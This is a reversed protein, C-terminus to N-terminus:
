SADNWPEASLAKFLTRREQDNRGLRLFELHETILSDSRTGSYYGYSSWPYASPHAVIGARVPNMEIYRHCVVLYRESDILSSKFRGEWLSGTRRHITNIVRVYRRGVDQMMASVAGTEAPTVLLHVHNTMLVYAHIACGRAQAATRLCKLYFVRDVEAFFCKARNNGRQLIHLPVGPLELRPPRAM